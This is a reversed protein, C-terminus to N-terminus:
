QYDCSDLSIKTKASPKIKILEMKVVNHLAIFVDKGNIITYIFPREGFVYMYTANVVKLQAGLEYWLRVESKYLNILTIKDLGKVM